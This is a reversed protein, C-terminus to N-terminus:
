RNYYDCLRMESNDSAKFKSWNRFRTSNPAFNRLACLLLLMNLLDNM